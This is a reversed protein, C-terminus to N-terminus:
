PLVSRRRRCRCRRGFRRWRICSCGLGITRQPCRGWWCCSCSRGEQCSCPRLRCCSISGCRQSWKSWLHIIISISISFLAAGLRLHSSQRCSGDGRGGRPQASRRCRWPRPRPQPQALGHLVPAQVRPRRLLAQRRLAQPLPHPPAPRASPFCVHRGLAGSSRAPLRCLPARVVFSRCRVSGSRLIGPAGSSRICRAVARACICGCSCRTQEGRHCCGPLWPRRPRKCDPRPDALVAAVRVICICRFRCRFQLRHRRLPLRATCGRYM